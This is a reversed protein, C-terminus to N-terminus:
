SKLNSKQLILRLQLMKTSVYVKRSHVSPNKRIEANEHNQFYNEYTVFSNKYTKGDVEFDEMDFDGARMKTYIDYPTNLVENLNTLAKEVEPSLLHQKQIKAQRITAKFHPNNELSDLIKIDANALTTNFFSLLVNAKTAFDSGAQSIQAFEENSFDTTQPMFAYTDIHSMQIYIHEIEMLASTFDEVCNLKGEYNKKKSFRSIRLLKKLLWYFDQRDKYLATLDWLENEPFESRKKLEM